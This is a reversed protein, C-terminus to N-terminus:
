FSRRKFEFPHEPFLTPANPRPWQLLLNALMVFALAFEFQIIWIM